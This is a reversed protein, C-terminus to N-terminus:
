DLYGLNVLVAEQYATLLELLDKQAADLDAKAKKGAERLATLKEQIEEPSAKPDDLAAQLDARFQASPDRQGPGGGPGGRPPGGPAGPGGRPPGRFDRPGGDPPMGPAGPGGDPLGGPAGPGGRPPGGFDRPGGDPPMGPADPGGRPPGGPVGPGGDPPGGPAGPGGFPPGGPAGPGGDPPGGFAGPGGRPPGGPGGGGPGAFAGRPGGPPGGPVGPGGGGPGGFSGRGGGRRGGVAGPGSGPPGGFAGPGGGPNFIMSSRDAEVFQRAAIVKWLKPGIVKWEEDTARIQVKVDEMGRDGGFGRGFGAPPGSPRPGVNAGGGPATEAPVLSPLALVVGMLMVMCLRTLM